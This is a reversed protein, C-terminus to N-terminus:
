EIYYVRNEKRPKKEPDIDCLAELSYNTTNEKFAKIHRFGEGMGIVAAVLKNNKM